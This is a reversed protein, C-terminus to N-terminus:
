CNICDILFCRSLLRSLIWSRTEMLSLFFFWNDSPYFFFFFCRKPIPLRIELRASLRNEGITGSLTGRYIRPFPYRARFGRARLHSAPIQHLSRRTSLHSADATSLSLFYHACPIARLYLEGENTTVNIQSILRNKAM